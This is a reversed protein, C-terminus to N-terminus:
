DRWPAHECLRKRQARSGRAQDVRRSRHNPVAVCIRLSRLWGPRCSGGGARPRAGAAAVTRGHAQHVECARPLARRCVRLRPLRRREHCVPPYVAAADFSRAPAPWASRACLTNSASIARLVPLPSQRTKANNTGKNPNNTGKNPNNPGKNANNTGKTPTNPGKNPDDGSERLDCLRNPRPTPTTARRWTQSRRCLRRGPPATPAPMCGGGGAQGGGAQRGRHLVSRERSKRRM